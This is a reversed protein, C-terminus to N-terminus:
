RISLNRKEENLVQRLRTQNELLNWEFTDLAEKLKDVAERARYRSVEPMSRATTLILSIEEKNKNIDKELDTTTKTWKRFVNQIREEFQQPTEVLSNAIATAGASAVNYLLSAGTKAAAFALGLITEGVNLLDEGIDIVEPQNNQAQNTQVQSQNQSDLNIRKYQIANGRCIPCLTNMGHRLHQELCFQHFFHNCDTKALERYTRTDDPARFGLQELCIPCEDNLNINPMEPPIYNNTYQSSRISSM